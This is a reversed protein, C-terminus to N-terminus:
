VEIEDFYEYQVFGWIELRNHHALKDVFVICPTERVQEALEDDDDIEMKINEITNYPYKKICDLHPPYTPDLIPRPNHIFCAYRKYLRTPTHTEPLPKKTFLYREAFVDSYSYPLTMSMHILTKGSSPYTETLYSTDEIKDPNEPILAYMQRPYAIDKGDYKINWVIPNKMFLKVIARDVSVGLVERKNVIEDTIAWVHEPLHRNEIITEPKEQFYTEFKDSDFFVFVKNKDSLFGKYGVDFHSLVMKALGKQEFSRTNLIKEICATKLLNTDETDDNETYQDCNHQFSPFSYYHKDTKEMFFSLYEIPFTEPCVPLRMKVRRYMCVFVNVHNPPSNGWFSDDFCLDLQKSLVTDEEEPNGLFTYIPPSDNDPLAEIYQVLQQINM